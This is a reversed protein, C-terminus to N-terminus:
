RLRLVLISAPVEWSAATNWYNGQARCETHGFLSSVQSCRSMLVLFLGSIALIPPVSSVFTETICLDAQVEFLQHALEKFVVIYDVFSVSFSICHRYRLLTNRSRSAVFPSSVLFQCGNRYHLARLATFRHSWM